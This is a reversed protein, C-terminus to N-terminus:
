FSDTFTYFELAVREFGIALIRYKLNSRELFEKFAKLEGFEFGIYFLLEDFLIVTGETIRPALANLVTSTSSYLDCDIHIFSCDGQHSELFPTLSNEFLGSILSVNKNVQPPASKFASKGIGPRWAEPLGEWCDFGYFQINPFVSSLYNITGGKFVGFEMYLGGESFREVATQCALKLLSQHDLSPPYLGKWAGNKLIFRASSLSQLIQMHHLPNDFRFPNIRVSISNVTNELAAIRAEFSAIKDTIINAGPQNKYAYELERIRESINKLKESAVSIGERFEQRSAELNESNKSNINKLDLLKDKIINNQQILLNIVNDFEDLIKNDQPAEASKFFRKIFDLM